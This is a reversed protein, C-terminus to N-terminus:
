FTVALIDGASFMVASSLVTKRKRRERIINAIIQNRLSKTAPPALFSISTDVSV